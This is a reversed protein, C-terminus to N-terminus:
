KKSVYVATMDEWFSDYRKLLEKAIIDQHDPLQKTKTLYRLFGTMEAAIIILDPNNM